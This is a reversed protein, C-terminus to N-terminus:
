RVRPLGRPHCATRPRFLGGPVGRRAHVAADPLRCAGGAGVERWGWVGAPRRRGALEDNFNINNTILLEPDSAMTLNALDGSPYRVVEAGSGIDVAILEHTGAAISSAALYAVNEFGTAVSSAIQGPLPLRWVETLTVRGAADRAVDFARLGAGPQPFVVRNEPTVIVSAGLAEGLPVAAFATCASGPPAAACASVDVAVLRMQNDGILVFSGDRTVTPTTAIGGQGEFEVRFAVSVADEGVELAWLAGHNEPNPAPAGGTVFVLGTHSDVAVNNDVEYASGGLAIAWLLDAAEPSALGELFGAPRPRGAARKASPLDFPPLRLAGSERDLVLIWGDGVTATVLDGSPLMNLGFPPNPFGKPSELATPIPNTWRLRGEPTLSAIQRSDAVYLNGDRDVLPNTLMAAADLLCRGDIRDEWLRDGTAADLARLNCRGSTPDHGLTCYIAGTPGSSCPQAVSSDTLAEWVKAIRTPAPRAVFDSARPDAHQAPYPSDALFPFEEVDAASAACVSAALVMALVTTRITM